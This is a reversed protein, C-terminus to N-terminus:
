GINIALSRRRPNLHLLCMRALSHKHAIFVHAHIVPFCHATRVRQPLDTAMPGIGLRAGNVCVWLMGREVLLGVRDGQGCQGTAGWDRDGPHAASNRCDYMRSGPMNHLRRGAPPAGDLDTVGFMIPCYTSELVWEAYCLEASSFVPEM